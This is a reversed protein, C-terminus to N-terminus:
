CSFCSICQRARRYDSIHKWYSFRSYCFVSSIELSSVQLIVITEKV